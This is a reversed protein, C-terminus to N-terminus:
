VCLCVRARALLTHTCFARVYRALLAPPLANGLLYGGRRASFGHLDFYAWLGPSAAAQGSRSGLSGASASARVCMSCSVSVDSSLTSTRLDRNRTHQVCPGVPRPLLELPISTPASEGSIGCQFLAKVKIRVYVM